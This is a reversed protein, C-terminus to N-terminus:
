LLFDTRLPFEGNWDFHYGLVTTHIQGYLHLEAGYAFDLSGTGPRGPVTAMMGGTWCATPRVGMAVTTEGAIRGVLRLQADYGQPFWGTDGTMKDFLQDHYRLDVDGSACRTVDAHAVRAGIATFLVALVLSSIKMALWSTCCRPWTARDQ